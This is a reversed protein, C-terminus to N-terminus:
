SYTTLQKEMVVHDIGVESFVGSTTAYGLKSYFNKATVRAHLVIKKYGETEAIHEAANMLKAGIGRGQWENYVAMQRFKIITGDKPHLMLCGIVKNNHLATVIIDKADDSLDENKLSLGIPQRLITERLQWVQDYEPTAVGVQRIIIDEM